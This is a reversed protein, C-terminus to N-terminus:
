EHRQRQAVLEARGDSTENESLHKPTNIVASGADATADGRGREEEERGGRRETRASGEPLCSSGGRVTGDQSRGEEKEENDERKEERRKEEKKM